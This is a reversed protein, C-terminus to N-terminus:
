ENPLDGEEHILSRMMGALQMLIPEYKVHDPAAWYMQLAELTRHHSQYYDGMRSLGDSYGTTLFIRRAAEVDGSNFLTNGKRNLAAKRSGDVPAPGTTKIFATQDAFKEFAKKYDMIIKEPPSGRVVRPWGRGWVM